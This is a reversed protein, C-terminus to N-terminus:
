CGKVLTLRIARDRSFTVMWESHRLMASNGSTREEQSVCDRVYASAETMPTLPGFKDAIESRTKGVVLSDPDPAHTMISLARDRDIKWLDHRWLFFAMNKPDYYGHYLSIWGAVFLCPICAVILLLPWRRRNTM